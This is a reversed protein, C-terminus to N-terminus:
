QSQDPPEHFLPRIQSHNWSFLIGGITWVPGENSKGLRHLLPFPGSRAKSALVGVGERLARFSRRGRAKRRACSRQRLAVLVVDSYYITASKTYIPSVSGAAKWGVRDKEGNM